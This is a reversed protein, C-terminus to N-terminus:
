FDRNYLWGEFYIPKLDKDWVIGVFITRKDEEVEGSNWRLLYKYKPEITLDAKPLDGDTVRFTEFRHVWQITTDSAPFSAKTGVFSEAKEFTVKADVASRVKERLRTRNPGPDYIHIKKVIGCNVQKTNDTKINNKIVFSADCDIIFDVGLYPYFYISDCCAADDTKDDSYKLENKREEPAGYLKIIDYKTSAGLEIGEITKAKYPTVIEIDYISTKLSVATFELGLSKYELKVKRVTYYGRKKEVKRKYKHIEGKGLIAIIQEPTTSDICISDLCRGVIIVNKKESNVLLTDSNQALGRFVFISFIIYYLLTIKM